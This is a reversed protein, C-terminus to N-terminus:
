PVNGTVRLRYDNVDAYDRNDGSFQITFDSIEDPRLDPINSISDECGVPVDAPNYLTGGVSVSSSLQSGDNRVWGNIIYDGM